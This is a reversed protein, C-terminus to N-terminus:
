KGKLLNAYERSQCTKCQRRKDARGNWQTGTFKDKTQMGCGEGSCFKQQGSLSPKPAPKMNPQNREKSQKSQDLQQILKKARESKAPAEAAVKRARHNRFIAIRQERNAAYYAKNHESSDSADFINYGTTALQLTPKSQQEWYLQNHADRQPQEAEHRRQFDAENM